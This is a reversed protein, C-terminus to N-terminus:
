AEVLVDLGKQYEHRAVSLLLPAGDAVGLELRARTRRRQDRRGLRLPDRGRPIVEIRDRPLRLRRAMVDAVQQTNAHFRAVVRATTADLLRAGELKWRRLGAGAQEAGYAVNVISSVVPVGSLWAAARGAIDAEFLTTHVVDPRTAAILQRLERAWGLRGGSRSVRSRPIGALDLETQVGPREHLYAVRLEMGHAAYQPAMAALSREAGGAALSDIVYLVRM